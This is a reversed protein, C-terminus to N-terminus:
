IRTNLNAWHLIARATRKTDNLLRKRARGKVQTMQVLHYPLKHEHQAAEVIGTQDQGSEKEKRRLRIMNQAIKRADPSLRCLLSQLRENSLNPIQAIIALVSGDIASLSKMGSEENTAKERESAKKEVVAKKRTM